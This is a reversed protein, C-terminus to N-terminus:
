VNIIHQHQIRNVESMHLLNYQPVQVNCILNFNSTKLIRFSRFVILYFISLITNSM